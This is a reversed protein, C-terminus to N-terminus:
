VQRNIDDLLDELKEELEAYDDNNVKAIEIRKAYDERVYEELMELLHQTTRM